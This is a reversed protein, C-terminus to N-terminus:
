KSSSIKIKSDICTSYNTSHILRSLAALFVWAEQWGGDCLHSPFRWWLVSEVLPFLAGPKEAPFGEEWCSRAGRGTKGSEM